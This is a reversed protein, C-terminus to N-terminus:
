GPLHRRLQQSDDRDPRASPGPRSRRGLRDGGSLDRPHGDPGVRGPARSTGGGHRARRCGPGRRGRGHLARRSPPPRHDRAAVRRDGRHARRPGQLRRRAARAAQARALFLSYAEHDARHISMGVDHLLAGAAVVVEADRDAMRSRHGDGASAARSWCGCCGCPSTSSSRSTSGRTIPCRWDSSQVQAMHWWSRVEPDANLGDLLAELRRNGRTPAGVRAAATVEAPNRGLEGPGAAEVEAAPNEEPEPMSAMRAHSSRRGGSRAGLRRGRRPGRERTANSPLGESPKPPLVSPSVISPILAVTVSPATSVPSADARIPAAISRKLRTAPVATGPDPDSRVVIGRSTPRPPELAITIAVRRASQAPTRAGARRPCANRAAIASATSVSSRPIAAPGCSRRTWACSPSSYMSKASSPQRHSARSGSSSGGM